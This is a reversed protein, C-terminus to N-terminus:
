DATGSREIGICTIDDYQKEDETHSALSALLIDIRQNIPTNASFVSLTREEGFSKGQIDQADTVGDTFAFLADGLGLKLTATKLTIDAFMGIAPGTKLLRESLMGKRIIAPADHGCNMYCLEDSDQDIVACFVTAFMNDKAHNVAIYENTQAIASLLGEEVEQPSYNKQARFGNLLNSRIMSRFLVMFLAAGVGKDCVDALIVAQKKGGAITFTDFFDGAVQRASQFAACVHWGPIQPLEDPFFGTQIRRGIELEKEAVDRATLVKQHLHANSIVSALQGAITQALRVDDHSFVEGSNSPIGITGTVEGRAMLPVLLLCTTGRKVMVEHLSRTIPNSQADPVVIPEGTKIVFLSADNGELPFELGCVDSEEPDESYFAVVKLRDKAKNLTAIGTNRADFAHVMEQCISHLIDDL